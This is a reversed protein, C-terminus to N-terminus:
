SENVDSALRYAHALYQQVMRQTNFFSGNLAIASRRIATFGAPQRYYMPLVVQELKSYLGQADAQDDSPTEGADGVAWGTIGELCGEVWWGDLVSLSPVGNLAAKMGSTGSAEEPRRPTNLWVDVGATLLRAWCLDYDEVYVMRVEDHLHRGAEIVRAIIGKGLEDRPHAKGGYIVQIPGVETGIRRLLGPDALLLEARKYAAARRGFGLTLVDERFVSGTRRAIEDILQRKTEAHAVM